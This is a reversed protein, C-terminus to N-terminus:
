PAEGGAELLPASEGPGHWAAHVFSRRGVIASMLGMCAMLVVIGPWGTRNWIPAPLVGGVSGGVYYFTVYIGVAVARAAGAAEGVFSTTATQAVFLGCSFLAMGLIVAPLWLFLTLLLGIIALAWSLELVRSHGYANLLRGSWPTVMISLLYVAFISSLAAPGLLFPPGALRLTLYTFTGVLSFLLSFGVGFSGRLEPTWLLARVNAANSRHDREREPPLLIYIAIALLLHLLALAAFAWRWGAFQAVLGSLLRGCFGGGITGAVYSALVRRSESAPWESGVYAVTVGFIGPLFFGQALRAIIMEAPTQAFPLLLAPIVVLFAASVIVRRRGLRDALAGAFPAAIAVSLTGASVVAGALAADAGLWERLLPLLSQPAYLNVFAAAGALTVALHRRDKM